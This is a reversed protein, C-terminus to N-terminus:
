HSGWDGGALLHRISPDVSFTEAEMENYLDEDVPRSIPDEGLTLRAILYRDVPDLGQDYQSLLRRANEVHRHSREKEEMFDAVDASLLESLVSVHFLEELSEPDDFKGIVAQAAEIGNMASDLDSGCLALIATQLQIQVYQEANKASGPNISLLRQAQVEMQQNIANAQALEGEAHLAQSYGM